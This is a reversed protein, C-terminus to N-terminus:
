LEDMGPQIEVHVSEDGFYEGEFDSDNSGGIMFTFLHGQVDEGKEMRPVIEEYGILEYGAKEAVDMVYSKSHAYRGSSQLKWGTPPAKEDEIRECSFILFCRKEENANSLNAFNGLLKSIDGIYVLVDAAVILDFGDISGDSVLENLKVTELDSSLLFDYLPATSREDEESEDREREDAEKLGCGKALTCEAALELMKKSLDVGVLPGGILPRLFRGALGTGCGADLASHFTEEGSGQLLDYAAEGVLQPVKYELAGLKEDFTDAFDDFLASVFENSARGKGDTEGDGDEGGTMAALMHMAVVNNGDLDTALRLANISNSKCVNKASDEDTGESTDIMLSEESMLRLCDSPSLESLVTGYGYYLKSLYANISNIQMQTEQYSEDDYEMEGSNPSNIMQDLYGNNEEAMGELLVITREYSRRAGYPGLFEGLEQKAAAMNALADWREEEGDEDATEVAIQYLNAAERTVEESRSTDQLHLALNFAADGDRPHSRLVQRLLSIARATREQKISDDQESENLDVLASAFNISCYRENPDLKLCAEYNQIARQLDGAALANNGEQLHNNIRSEYESYSSSVPVPASLLLIVIAFIVSYGIRIRPGFSM